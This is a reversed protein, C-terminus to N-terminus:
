RELVPFTKFIAFDLTVRDKNVLISELQKKTRSDIMVSIPKHGIFLPILPCKDQMFDFSKNVNADSQHIARECM